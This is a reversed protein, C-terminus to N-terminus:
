ALELVNVDATGSATIGYIPNNPGLDFGIADNNSVEVGQAAGAATVTASGVYIKKGSKNSILVYHRNALAAAPLLTATNAVTVLQQLISTDMRDLTKLRGLADLQFAAYDGNANVLSTTTDNRVALSFIGIDGSVSASDEAFAGSTAITGTIKIRGASDVAIPSYDLDTSTLVANADNRVALAFVGADGSVHAADELHTYSQVTSLISALSTHTTTDFVYLEGLNNSKFDGFDGDTSTSSALTDQRVLLVSAGLHGSASASDEAFVFDNNVNIDANVRLRGLADVQLPAYDGDTSVMSGEVDNRVALTFIGFDGSAHATDEAYDAADKVRLHQNGGITQGTILTGSADVLYAAISDGNSLAATDIQISTKSFVTM